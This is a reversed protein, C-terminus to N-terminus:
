LMSPRDFCRSLRNPGIRKLGRKNSLWFLNDVHFDRLVISKKGSSSIRKFLNSWISEM